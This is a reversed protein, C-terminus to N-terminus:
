CHVRNQTCNYEFLTPGQSRVSNKLWTGCISAMFDNISLCWIYAARLSGPQSVIKNVLTVNCNVISYHYFRKGVPV